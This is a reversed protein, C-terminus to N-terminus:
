NVIVIVSASFFKCILLHLSISLAYAKDRNEVGDQRIAINFVLYFITNVMNSPHLKALLRETKKKLKGYMQKPLCFDLRPKRSFDLFTHFILFFQEVVYLFAVKM